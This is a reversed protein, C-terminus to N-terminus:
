RLYFPDTKFDIFRLANNKKSFVFEFYGDRPKVDPLSADEESIDSIAKVARWMLERITVPTALNHRMRRVALFGDCNFSANWPIIRGHALRELNEDSCIEIVLRENASIIIGSHSAPDYENLVVCFSDHLSRPLKKNLERKAREYKYDILTVRQIGAELPVARCVIREGFLAYFKTVYSPKALFETLPVTLYTYTPLGSGRLREIDALRDDLGLPVLRDLKNDRMAALWGSM